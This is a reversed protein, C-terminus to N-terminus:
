EKQQEKNERPQRGEMEQSIIDELPSSIIKQIDSLMISFRYEAEFYKKVILNLSMIELAKSLREEQEPPVEIGSMKQQQLEWQNKRFDSVMEKASSDKELQEHAEKYDRYEPSSKMAKALAHAYDYTNM